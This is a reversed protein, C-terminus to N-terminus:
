SPNGIYKQLFAQFDILKGAKGETAPGLQQHTLYMHHLCTLIQKNVLLLEDVDAQLKVVAKLASDGNNASIEIGKGLADIKSVLSSLDFQPAQQMQQQPMAQPQQFQPQFQQAPAPAPPNFQTVPVAAPQAPVPQPSFGPPAQMQGMPPPAVANGAAAKRKKGTVPAAEMPPAAPAGMPMQMQQPMQPQMPVMQQPPAAYQPQQPQPAFQQPQPAYQPQQPQQAFQQPAMPMQAFQAPSMPAQPAQPAPQQPMFSMQPQTPQQAMQAGNTPIMQPAQTQPVAVGGLDNQLLGESIEFNIIATKVLERNDLTEQYTMLPTKDPKLYIMYALNRVSVFRAADLEAKRQSAMMGPKPALEYNLDRM